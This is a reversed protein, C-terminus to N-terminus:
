SQYKKLTEILNIKEKNNLLSISVEPYKAKSNKVYQYLIVKQKLGFLSTKIEFGGFKEKEIEISRKLPNFPASTFYRLVIKKGHDSFYIYNAEIVIFYFFYILYIGIVLLLWYKRELGLFEPYVLRTVGILSALIATAIAALFQRIRVQYIRKKNDIIM